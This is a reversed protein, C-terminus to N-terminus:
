ILMVITEFISLGQFSLIKLIINSCGYMRVGDSYESRILVLTAMYVM